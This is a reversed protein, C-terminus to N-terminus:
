FIKNNDWFLTNTVHVLHIFVSERQHKIQNSKRTIPLVPDNKTNEFHVERMASVFAYLSNIQKTTNTFTTSNELVAVWHRVSRLSFGPPPPLPTGRIEGKNGGGGVGWCLTKITYTNPPKVIAALQPRLM